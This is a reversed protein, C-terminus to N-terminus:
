TGVICALSEKACKQWDYQSLVDTSRELYKRRLFPDFLMEAMGLKLSNLDFPDIYLAANGMVEGLSANGSVVAPTGCALAELPPFGFGEYFSPFVFTTALNYLAPKDAKDVFGLLRIDDRYPSVEYRHLADSFKWGRAGAIVLGYEKLEPFEKRLADYAIILGDVNKRPEITGLYLIFKEPLGYKSRVENLIPDNEAMIRYESGIGSYILKIREAEVDCYEILDDKTNGSIAILQDFGKLREKVQQARHWINKRWSFYEPYLLFSLDHVTMVSRCDGSLAAFNIHPMFFAEVGLLKDLQPKGLRAQMLYGFLKNPYRTHVIRANPYDFAGIRESMDTLSNYFLIYENDQDQRLMEHVLRHCYEPIGSYYGDMLTRIDIGIRM